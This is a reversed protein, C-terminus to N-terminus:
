PRWFKKGCELCRHTPAVLLPIALSTLVISIIIDAVDMQPLQRNEAMATVARCIWVVGGLLWVWPFYRWGGGTVGLFTKKTNGSGCAPCIFEGRHAPPNINASGAASDGVPAPRQEVKDVVGGAQADTLRKYAKFADGEGSFEVVGEKFEESDATKGAFFVSCGDLRAGKVTALSIALRWQPRMCALVIMAVPVLGTMAVLIGVKPEADQVCLVIFLLLLIALWVTVRRALSWRKTGAYVLNTGEVTLVGRGEFGFDDTFKSNGFCVRYTM